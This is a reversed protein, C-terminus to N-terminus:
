KAPAASDQEVAPQPAAEPAAPQGASQSGPSASPQEPAVAPQPAPAAPEAPKENGAPVAGAPAAAAPAPAPRKAAEAESKIREVAQLADLRLSSGPYSALFEDFQRLAAQDDGQMKAEMAKNFKQLEEEPVESPKDKGKWYIDASEDNKAGRVGGVATTSTTKKAPTVKELRNMMRDWFSDKGAAAANSAAVTVISIVAIAIRISNM